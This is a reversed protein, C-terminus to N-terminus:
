NKPRKSLLKCFNTVVKDYENRQKKEHMKTRILWSIGIIIWFLVMFACLGLFVGIATIIIPNM